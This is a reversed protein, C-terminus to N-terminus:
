LSYSIGTTNGNNDTNNWCFVVGWNCTEVEVSGYGPGHIPIAIFTTIHYFKGHIHHPIGWVIYRNPIGRMMPNTLEFRM